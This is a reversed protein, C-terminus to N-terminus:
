GGSFPPLLAVKGNATLPTNQQIVRGNVAVVFTAAKLGPFQVYLHQLLADSDTFSEQLQLAGTKTIDTLQGFLLVEM